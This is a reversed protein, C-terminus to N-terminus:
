KLLYFLALWYHLFLYRGSVPRWWAHTSASPPSSPPSPSLKPPMSHQAARPLQTQQKAQPAKRGHPLDGHPFPLPTNTWSRHLKGESPDLPAQLLGQSQRGRVPVWAIGALGDWNWRRDSWNDQDNKRGQTVAVSCKVSMPVHTSSSTASWQCTFLILHPLNYKKACQKKLTRPPDM